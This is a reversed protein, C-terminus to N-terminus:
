QAGKVREVMARQVESKKARIDDPVPTKSQARRAQEEDELLIAQRVGQKHLLESEAQAKQEEAMRRAREAEEEKKVEIQSMRRVLKEQVANKLDEQSRRREEDQLDHKIQKASNRRILEEQFLAKKSELADPAKTDTMPRDFQESKSGTATWLGGKGRDGKEGIEGQGNGLPGSTGTVAVAGVAGTARRAVEPSVQVGGAEAKRRRPSLASAARPPPRPYVAHDGEENEDDAGESEMNGEVFHSLDPELADDRSEIDRKNSYSKHDMTESSSPERPVRASSAKTTDSAIALRKGNSNSQSVTEIPGRGFTSPSISSEGPVTNLPHLTGGVLVTAHQSIEETDVIVTDGEGDAEEDDEELVEIEEVEEVGDEQVEDSQAEASAQEFKDADEVFGSAGKTMRESEMGAARRPPPPPPALVPPVYEAEGTFDAAWAPGLHELPALASKNANSETGSSSNDTSDSGTSTSSSDEESEDDNGSSEDSDIADESSTGGKTADARKRQPVSTLEFRSTKGKRGKAKRDSEGGDGLTGKSVVVAMGWGREGAVEKAVSVMDRLDRGPLGLGGIEVRRLHPREALLRDWVLPEPPASGVLQGSTAPLPLTTSSSPDPAPPNHLDVHLVRLNVLKDTLVLWENATLGRAGLSWGASQQVNDAEIWEVVEVHEGNKRDKGSRVSSGGGSLLLEAYHWVGSDWASAHVLVQRLNPIRPITLSAYPPTSITPNSFALHPPTSKLDSVVTRANVPVIASSSSLDVARLAVRVLQIVKISSAVSSTLAVLDALTPRLVRISLTFNPPSGHPLFSANPERFERHAKTNHFKADLSVGETHRTKYPKGSATSKSSLNHVFPDVESGSVLVDKLNPLGQALRAVLAVWSGHPLNGVQLREVARALHAGYPSALAVSLSLIDRAPHNTRIDSFLIPRVVGAYYSNCISLSAVDRASLLRAIRRLPGLPLTPLAHQIKTHNLAPPTPTDTRRQTDLFFAGERGRALPSTDRSLDRQSVVDATSAGDELVAPSVVRELVEVNNAEGAKATEIEEAGGASRDRGITEYMEPVSRPTPVVIYTM